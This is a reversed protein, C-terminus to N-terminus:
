DFTFFGYARCFRGKMEALASELGDASEVQATPWELKDRKPAPAVERQGRNGLLPLKTARLLTCTTVFRGSVTAAQYVSVALAAFDAFVQEYFEAAAVGGKGTDPFEWVGAILHGDTHLETAWGGSSGTVNIALGDFVAKAGGNSAFQQWWAFQSNLGERRMAKTLAPARLDDVLQAAVLPMSQLVLAPKEALSYDVLFQDRRARLQEALRDHLWAAAMEACFDNSM